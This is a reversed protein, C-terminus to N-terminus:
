AIVALRRLDLGEDPRQRGDEFYCVVFLGRCNGAPAEQDPM